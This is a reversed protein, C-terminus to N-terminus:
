PEFDPGESEQRVDGEDCLLPLLTNRGGMSGSSYCQDQTDQDGRTLNCRRSSHLRQRRPKLLGGAEAEQTAPIVLCTGGHGALKQIKLLSWTKGHQGPQDRVGSRLYDVQRPRGFHQVADDFLHSAASSNHTKRNTVRLNRSGNSSTIRGGRGGLTSPNCAHAVACTGGCKSSKEIKLLSPTEGHQGPQHQVGSKLHDAEQRPRGFHETRLTAPVVPAHWSAQSTPM